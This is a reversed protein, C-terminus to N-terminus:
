NGSLLTSGVWDLELSDPVRKQCGHACACQYAFFIFLVNSYSVFTQFRLEGYFKFVLRVFLRIDSIDKFQNIKKIRQLLVSLLTRSAKSM